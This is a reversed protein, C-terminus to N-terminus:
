LRWRQPAQFQFRGHEARGFYRHPTVITGDREPFLRGAAAGSSRATRPSPAPAGLPRPATVPSGAALEAVDRASESVVPVAVLPRLALLMM